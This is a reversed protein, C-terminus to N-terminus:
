KTTSRFYIKLKDLVKTRETVKSASDQRDREERHEWEVLVLERMSHDNMLSSELRLSQELLISLEEGEQLKVCLRIDSECEDDSRLPHKDCGKDSRVCDVLTEWNVDISIGVQSYNINLNHLLFPGGCSSEYLASLEKWSFDELFRWSVFNGVISFSLWDKVRKSM